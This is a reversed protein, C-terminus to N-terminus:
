FRSTFWKQLRMYNYLVRAHRGKQTCPDIKPRLCDLFEQDCECPHRGQRYCEDHAKCAADVDNIPAGPGNCGPGCWNYGPFVCLRFRRNRRYSLM